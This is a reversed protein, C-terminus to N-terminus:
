RDRGVYRVGASSTRMTWPRADGIAKLHRDYLNDARRINRRYWRDWDNTKDGGLLVIGRRNKDFAVLARIHGGVARLEKMNHYRSAKMLGVLPRRLSPGELEIKDVTKGIKEADKVPLANFWRAAEPTFTIKWNERREQAM